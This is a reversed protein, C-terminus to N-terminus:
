RRVFWTDGAVMDGIGREECYKTLDSLRNIFGYGKYNLSTNCLAGIGTRARFATLLEHLLPNTQTSVTQVRASSDVHTVAGLRDSRGDPFLAHVPGRLRTDFLEGLDEVRACPAVPRFTERQKIENLRDRMAADAPDALLSRNGLARPGIEWRGQM